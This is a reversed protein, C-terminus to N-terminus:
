FKVGIIKYMKGTNAWYHINRVAMSINNGSATFRYVAWYDNTAFQTFDFNSFGPFFIDTRKEGYDIGWVIIYFNYNNTSEGINVNTSGTTNSYLQTFKPVNEEYAVKKNYNSGGYLDGQVRINNNFWHGNGGTTSYHCYGYSNDGIVTSNSNNTTTITGNVNLNNEMTLTGSSYEAIRSTFDSSSNNYHFDIFPTALSPGGLEIYHAKSIANTKIDKEVDLDGYIDVKNNASSDKYTYIAPKGGPIQTNALVQYDITDTLTATASIPYKYDDASVLNFTGTLTGSTNSLAVENYLTYTTGNYTYSASLKPTLGGSVSTFNYTIEYEITQGTASQRELVISLSPTNWDKRTLTISGSTTKRGDSATLTKSGGTFNTGLTAYNNGLHLGSATAGGSINITNGYLYGSSSGLTFSLRPNSFGQLFTNTSTFDSVKYSSGSRIYNNANDDSSTITGMSLSYSPLSVVATQTSTNGVQTGSSKTTLTATYTAQTNNGMIQYFRAKATPNVSDSFTITNTGNNLEFNTNCITLTDTFSVNRRTINATITISSNNNVVMSLSNFVSARPITDLVVDQSATYTGAMSTGTQTLSVSINCTKTGDENHPVDITYSGVEKPETNWNSRKKSIYISNGNITLNGSFTGNTNYNTDRWVYVTASVSSKNNIADSPTSTWDISINGISATSTGYITGSAFLQINLKM